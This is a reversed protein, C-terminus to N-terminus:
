RVISKKGRSFISRWRRVKKGGSSLVAQLSSESRWCEQSLYVCECVYIFRVRCERLKRTFINYFNWAPFIRFFM